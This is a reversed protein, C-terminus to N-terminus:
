DDAWRSLFFRSFSEIKRLFRTFRAANVILTGIDEVHCEQQTLWGSAIWEGLISFEFDFILLKFNFM